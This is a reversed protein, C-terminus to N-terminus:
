VMRSTLLRATLALRLILHRGEEGAGVGKVDFVVRASKRPPLWPVFPTSPRGLRLTPSPEETAGPSNLSIQILTSTVPALPFTPLAVTVARMSRPCWTREPDAVLPTRADQPPRPRICGPRGSRRRLHTRGPVLCPPLRAVQFRRKMVIFHRRHIVGNIDDVASELSGHAVPM